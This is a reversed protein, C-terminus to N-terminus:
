FEIFKIDETKQTEINDCHHHVHINLNIDLKIRNEDGKIDIDNCNFTECYDNNNSYENECMEMMRGFLSAAM